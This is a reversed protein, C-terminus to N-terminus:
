WKIQLRRVSGTCSVWAKDCNLFVFISAVTHLTHQLQMEAVLFLMHKYHFWMLTIYWQSLWSSHTSSWLWLVHPAIRSIGLELGWLPNMQIGHQMAKSWTTTYHGLDQVQSYWTHPTRISKVAGISKRLSMHVNKRVTYPNFRSTELSSATIAHEREWVMHAINKVTWRLKDNVTPFSNQQLIHHCM